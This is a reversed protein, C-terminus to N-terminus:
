SQDMVPYKQLYISLQDVLSNLSSKLFSFDEEESQIEECLASQYKNLSAIERNINLIHNSIHDVCATNHAVLAIFL